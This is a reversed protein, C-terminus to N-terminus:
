SAHAPATVLAKEEEEEKRLKASSPWRPDISASNKKYFFVFIMFCVGNEEPGNRHREIVVCDILGTM